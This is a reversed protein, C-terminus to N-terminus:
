ASMPHARLWDTVQEASRDPPFVPYFATEIRGGRVVLTLRKLLTAGESTFTPLDLAETLVLDADSLVSFPLHLREVMERQCATDQTSLGYVDAGLGALEAHHDRFACSQPTCGRAGPIADWGDPLAVGPAGTRPYAYIVTRPAELAGLDVEGATSPLRASPMTMGTLHRAAGDDEPVPLDPPLDTLSTMPKEQPKTDTVRGCRGAQVRERFGRRRGPPPRGRGPALPHHVEARRRPVEVHGGACGGRRRRAGLRRDSGGQGRFPAAGPCLGRGRRRLPRGGDHRRRPELRVLGPPRSEAPGRARDLGGGRARTRPLPGGQLRSIGPHRRKNPALAAARRIMREARADDEWRIVNAAQGIAYPSDPAVRYAELAAAHGEAWLREMDAEPLDPTIMKYSTLSLKAWAEGFTPEMKVARELLKASAALDAPDLSHEQEVALMYLEYAALDNVGKIRAKARDARAIPGSWNSALEGVLAESAARQLRLLDDTPGEFRKSWLRRGSGVDSLAATVRARGAEAQVSGTIAYAAGLRRAAAQPDLAVAGRTTADALVFLWPNQALDAIVEGTLARALREWRAGASLAEFPLVAVVPGDGALAAPRRSQWALLALVAVLVLIALAAAGTRRRTLPRRRATEHPAPDPHLSYGRKAHTRLANKADDGLARRVEGVCQVLADEDVFVGPWVADLLRDKTVVEGARDALVRLLAMTKPRLAAATGDARRVLGVDLDVTVGGLRLVNARSGETEAPKPSIEAPKRSAGLPPPGADPRHWRGLAIKSNQWTRLM